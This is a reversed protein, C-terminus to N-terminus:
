THYCYDVTTPDIMYGRCLRCTILDHFQRVDRSAPSTADMAANSEMTNHTNQLHM